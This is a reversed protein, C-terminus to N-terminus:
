HPSPAGRRIANKGDQELYQAARPYDHGQEFHLALEAAIEGVRNGYAREEGESIRRHLRIRQSVALRDYSSRRICHTYSGM